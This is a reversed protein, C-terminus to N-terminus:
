YTVLIILMTNCNQPHGSTAIKTSRLQAMENAQIAQLLKLTSLTLGNDLLPTSLRVTVYNLSRAMAFHGANPNLGWICGLDRHSFNPISAWVLAHASEFIFKWTSCRGSGVLRVGSLSYKKLSQSGHKKQFPVVHDMNQEGSGHEM